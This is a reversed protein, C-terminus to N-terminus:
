RDIKIAAPALVSDRKIQEFFITKVFDDMFKEPLYQYIVPFHSPADFRKLCELLLAVQLHPPEQHLTFLLFHDILKDGYM